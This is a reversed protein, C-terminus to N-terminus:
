FLKDKTFFKCINIQFSQYFPSDINILEDLLFSFKMIYM